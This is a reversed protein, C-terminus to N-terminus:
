YALRGCEPCRAQFELGRLDYGCGICCGSHRQLSQRHFERRRILGLVFRLPILSLLGLVYLMVWWVAMNMLIWRGFWESRNGALRSALDPRIDRVAAAIAGHLGAAGELAALPVFAESSSSHLRAHPHRAQEMCAFPWGATRDIIQLTFVDVMQRSGDWTTLDDERRLRAVWEGREDVSLWGSTTETITDRTVVGASGPGILLALLLSGVLVWDTARRWFTREPRASYYRIRRLSRRIRGVM